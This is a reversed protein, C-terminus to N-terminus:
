DDNDVQKGLVMRILNPIQHKAGHDLIESIIDLSQLARISAQYEERSLLVYQSLLENDTINAM